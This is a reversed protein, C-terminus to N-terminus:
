AVRVALGAADGGVDPFRTMVDPDHGPVVVAGPERALRRLLDYGRYMAELDAVVAFPRDLEWEETFHAADSALVVPGRATEVVVVQQGPSHGGATISTVGPAVDATGDITRARGLRHAEQVRAIEEPEVDKAFLGRGGYPGTWFALEREPVVIGAGPFADLNGIHDYHFHTVLVQSVSAPEVGLRALADVPPCLCTRDRRTGAAPDYGTDVLVTGGAGRLVWLYYDIVQEADPEGHAEHRHFLEGRTSRRTAYRVALVEYPPGASV